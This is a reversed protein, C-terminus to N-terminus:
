PAKAPAVRAAQRNAVAAMIYPTAIMVAAVALVILATMEANAQLMVVTLLIVMFPAKFLVMLFGAMVGGIIVDIRVGPLLMGIALAVCVSAFIAPFTPGGLFGSKFAVALLALKVVAMAVLTAPGYATPDAVIAQIQTEGSFLLIPAFVGVISFIAGAALAREVERGKFRGFLGAAARFLVGALLALALGILGFVVVLVIDIVAYPQSPSLHLYNELGSSGAAFFILYGISGGILTAPLNRAKAEQDAILESGLVGTFLPNAVLGNYASAISSFVLRSRQEVPVGVKDSYLAALKSSIGGIGGEPGLVAGSFLSAWAMIVNIPLTRWDIKTVDGSLSDLLSEDLTTPAHRYKVLLGVLLSFPLCIVPFLWPNAAVVDNEWLLKNVAEFVILWALVAVAGIIAIVVVHVYPHVPRASTIPEAVDREEGSGSVSTLTAATDSMPPQM